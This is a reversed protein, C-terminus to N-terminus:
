RFDFSEHLIRHGPVGRRALRDSLEAVLPAPGCVQVTRAALGTVRDLLPDLPPPSDGTEVALLELLTDERALQQLEDLFAADRGRPYLYVLTTPAARPHERLAAVFPTIGIGGAVWLQPGADRGALFDGFPGQLRALGGPSLGQLRGSCHGLAKITLQLTGDAGVRSATFPHFEGCGHYAPGDDFRALVFQGAAIPMAGALPVLRLDVVGPAPRGVAAVHYPSASLGADVAMFRWALAVGALGAGAAALWADGLLAFVHLWGALAGIGLAQHLVLWRRYALRRGFSFALGLMLLLLALWGSWVPWAHQFPDLTQWARRPDDRWGEAALALPHVLLLVYGLVGSRHHWRLMAELGGLWRALRPERVMLVFSAVILACGVWASVIGLTRWPPLEAPYSWLGFAAVLGVVLMLPRARQVGEPLALSSM